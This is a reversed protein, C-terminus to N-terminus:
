IERKVEPIKNFKEAYRIQCDNCMLYWKVQGDYWGWGEPLDDYSMEETECIECHQFTIREALSDFLRNYVTFQDKYMRRIRLMYEVPLDEITKATRQLDPPFSLGLLQMARVTRNQEDSLNM